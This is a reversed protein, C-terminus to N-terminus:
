EGQESLYDKLVDILIDHMNEHLQQIIWEDNCFDNVARNLFMDFNEYFEEESIEGDFGELLVDTCDSDDYLWEYEDKIFRAFLDDM